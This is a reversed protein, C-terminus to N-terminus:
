GGGVFSVVEVSDEEKLITTDYEAKPLIELNLEVVVKAKDYGEDNLLQTVTKGTCDLVKGNVKAMFRRGEQKKMFFSFSCVCEKEEFVSLFDYKGVNANDLDPTHTSLIM